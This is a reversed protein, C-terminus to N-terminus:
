SMTMFRQVLAALLVGLLPLSFWFTGRLWSQQRISPEFAVRAWERAILLLILVVATMGAIVSWTTWTVQPGKPGPDPEAVPGPPRERLEYLVADDNALVRKLEPRQDLTRRLRQEWTPSYGVDMSLYVSQGRSIMLYSNPGAKRLAKVLPNVLVPDPPALTPEYQVREMGQAGWPIAPTVNEIIDDSMWLLRATPKDHEYVYEMAAVEGPRVREFAENGWRAVLFGGMLLLGALLAAIPGLGRRATPVRPFVALAALVCAGPLAFMFVRLAMEGGYSQMGFGLFPVFTLVLLSRETFGAARRRLVGYCAFAMIGGALAVRSYLVLKHVSDGGEIRGSVSSSVNGGVGGVGGFLEDFHGSWYPEALLGIWVVVLVGFLLPLGYLSSRRVLVLLTLVGLMMFPTLQHAAVTAAFLVILVALLVVRQARGVSEVEMEGPLRKGALVRPERFWVLLIGVFALYLLYTFGQPSFYDQGVWGCLVFLWAATWKARWSARVSRLLLMLPALYLLQITLPWWRLVETLDNVGCARAVFAAAAFFGPWSWRADLDPVASGTREIFDLFGVHQWATAFRPEGELVAPLAHLSVVTVLLLVTLLLRRQRDLWLTCAFAVVLLAAGLLTARPLVAVLGLGGMRDLDSADLAALPLWYLAVAAVLLVWVALVPGHPRRSGAGAAASRTRWRAALAGVSTPRSAPDAGTAGQSSREPAGARVALPPADLGDSGGSAGLGDPGDSGAAGAPVDGPGPRVDPRREMHDFDLRAGLPMTDTDLAARLAWSPRRPPHGLVADSASSAAPAPAAPGTGSASGVGALPTDADSIDDSDSPSVGSISAAAGSGAAAPQGTLGRPLKCA